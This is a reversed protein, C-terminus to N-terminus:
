INVSLTTISEPSVILPENGMYSASQSLSRKESTEWTTMTGKPLGKIVIAQKDPKMNIIVVVLDDTGKNKYASVLLENDYKGKVEIRVAGPRIFQSFNGM